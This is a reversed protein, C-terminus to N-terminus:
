LIGECFAIFAAMKAEARELANVTMLGYFDPCKEKDCFFNETSFIRLTLTVALHHTNGNTQRDTQAMKRAM